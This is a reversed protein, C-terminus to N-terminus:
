PKLTVKQKLSANTFGFLALCNDIYKKPWKVPGSPYHKSLMDANESLFTAGYEIYANRNEAKQMNDYVIEMLEELAPSNSYAETIIDLADEETFEEEFFNFM